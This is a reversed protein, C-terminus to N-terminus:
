NEEGFEAKPEDKLAGNLVVLPSVVDQFLQGEM